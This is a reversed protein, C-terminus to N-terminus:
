AASIALTASSGPVCFHHATVSPICSLKTSPAVPLPVSIGHHCTFWWRQPELNETSRLNQRCLLDFLHEPKFCSPRGLYNLLVTSSWLQQITETFHFLFRTSMDIFVGAAANNWCCPVRLHHVRTHLKIGVVVIILGVRYTWEMHISLFSLTWRRLWKPKMSWGRRPM